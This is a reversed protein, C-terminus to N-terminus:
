NGFVPASAIRVIMASTADTSPNIIIANLPSLFFVRLPVMAANISTAPITDKAFGVCDYAASLRATLTSCGAVGEFLTSIFNPNTANSTSPLVTVRIQSTCFGPSPDNTCNSLIFFKPFPPDLPSQLRSLVIRDVSPSYM